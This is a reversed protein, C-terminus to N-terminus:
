QQLRLRKNINRHLKMFYTYLQIVSYFTIANLSPIVSFDEEVTKINWDIKFNVYNSDTM